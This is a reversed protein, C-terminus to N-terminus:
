YWRLTSRVPAADCRAGTREANVGYARLLQTRLNLPNHRAVGALATASSQAWHAPISLRDLERLAAAPTDALTLWGVDGVGPVPRGITPLGLAAADLVSLCSGEFRASHLHVQASGQEAHLQETPLWGSVQVGAAILERRHHADGDGIWCFTYPRGAKRAAEAVQAFFAPDKQASLRGAMVVRLESKFTAKPRLSQDPLNYIRLVDSSPALRRAAIAEDEGAAAIVIPRRGLLWEAQGLLWQRSGRQAFTAFANPTFVIRVPLPRLRVLAGSHSSHAHVVDFRLEDILRRIERLAATRRSPLTWAGDFLDARQDRVTWNNDQCLLYHRVDPTSEAYQQIATAIGGGWRDTLHLVATM